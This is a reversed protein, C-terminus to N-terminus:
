QEEDLLDLPNERTTPMQMYHPQEVYDKRMPYGVWGEPLLLPRLDPHGEFHIGYMEAAEREYWDAAPWVGVVSPLQAADRPAAAKLVLTHRQKYSYLHYVCTLTEGTDMGTLSQCFDFDLAPEVRCYMCVVDLKHGSVTIFPDRLEKDAETLGLVVDPGFHGSLKEHIKDVEM